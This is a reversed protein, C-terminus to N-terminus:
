GPKRVTYFLRLSDSFKWCEHGYCAGFLGYYEDPAMLPFCSNTRQAAFYKIAIVLVVLGYIRNGGPLNCFGNHPTYFRSCNDYFSIDFCISQLLLLIM